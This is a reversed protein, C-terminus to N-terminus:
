ECARFTLFERQSFDRAPQVVELEYFRPAGTGWDFVACRASDGAFRSRTMGNSPQLGTWQLSGDFDRMLVEQLNLVDSTVAGGSSSVNLASASQFDDIVFKEATQSEKYENAIVVNAGIGAPHFDEYTRTFFERGAPNGKAYLEVLPLLYGKVVQHTAPRGIPDPGEVPSPD